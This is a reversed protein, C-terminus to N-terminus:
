TFGLFGTEELLRLAEPLAKAAKSGHEAAIIESIYATTLSGDALLQPEVIVASYGEGLRRALRALRLAADLDQNSAQTISLLPFGTRRPATDRMWDEWLGEPWSSGAPELGAALRGTTLAARAAEYDGRAAHAEALLRTYADLLHPYGPSTGTYLSAAAAAARAARAIAAGSIRWADDVDSHYFRDPWQNLMVAEVGYALFPVHDSGAMFPRLRGWSAGYAATVGRYATATFGSALPLPPAYLATPGVTGRRGGVMDLNFAAAPASARRAVLISGTYEPLWFFRVECAPQAGSDAAESLAALAEAAAAVGSANDNASPEPHCAHAVLAVYGDCERRGPISAELVPVRHAPGLDSDVFLRVRRGELGEALRRPLAVAPVGYKELLRPDLFLGVYPVALGPLDGRYFAIAKAGAEAALIYAIDWPGGKVIAIRGRAREYESPDLPDSITVAEGDVVGDSPPSHAAAVTPHGASDVRLGRAEVWAEHLRWSPPPPYEEPLNSVSVEILNVEVSEGVTSLLEYELWELAEKLGPGLQIRSFRTFGKLLRFARLPRVYGPADVM